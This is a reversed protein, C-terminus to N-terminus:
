HLLHHILAKMKMMNERQSHPPDGIRKRKGSELDELVMLHPMAVVTTVASHENTCALVWSTDSVTM